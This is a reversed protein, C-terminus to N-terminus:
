ARRLEEVNSPQQKGSIIEDLRRAWADLAQRKERDYSHRDYVATVGHEAHNLVRAVIFRSIGISTMHSAASRRLDHPTVDDGIGLKDKVRSVAYNVARAIIPKDARPSPFLWRSRGSLKRVEALLDLATDSLPVRHSRENKAKDAPITWIREGDCDMERWEASIIEGKRQATVLQLKLVLACRRTMGAPPDSLAKWLTRIEDASLVRERSHEEAPRPVGDVPNHEIGGIEETIAWAFIMRAAEHVRNAMIPADRELVTRLVQRIDARTVALAKMNGILPNLDRKIIREDTKWSRKRPTGTGDEKYHPGKAYEEIYRSALERFTEAHREKRAPAAPDIGREAARLADKAAGRADALEDIGFELSMSGKAKRGKVRYRVIWTRRGKSSVRLGFGPLGIDFYEIFGEAPAPLTSANRATFKIQPV